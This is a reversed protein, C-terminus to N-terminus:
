EAACVDGVIRLLIKRRAIEVDAAVADPRQNIRVTRLVDRDFAAPHDISIALRELLVLDLVGILRVIRARARDEAFVAAFDAQAIHLRVEDCLALHVTWMGSERLTVLVKM